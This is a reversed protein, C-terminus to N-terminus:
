RSGTNRPHDGAARENGRRYNGTVRAMLQQGAAQSCSGLRRLFSAAARGRLTEVKRGHRYIEVDGNKLVRHTFDLSGPPGGPGARSTM